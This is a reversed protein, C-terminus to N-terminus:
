WRREMDAKEEALSRLADFGKGGSRREGDGRMLCASGAREEAWARLCQVGACGFTKRRERANLPNLGGKGGGLDEPM